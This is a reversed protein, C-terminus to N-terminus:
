LVTLKPSRNDVGDCLCVALMFLVFNQKSESFLRVCRCGVVPMRVLPQNADAGRALLQAVVNADGCQVALAILPAVTITKGDREGRQKM